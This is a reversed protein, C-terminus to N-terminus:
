SGSEAPDTLELGVMEIMEALFRDLEGALDPTGPYRAELVRLIEDRDRRSDCLRLIEAGSGHLRIAQEPLVLVDGHQRRRKLAAHRALAPVSSGIIRLAGSSARANASESGASM